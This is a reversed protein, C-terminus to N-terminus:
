LVTGIGVDRICIPLFYNCHKLMVKASAKHQVLCNYMQPALGFNVCIVADKDSLHLCQSNLTLM